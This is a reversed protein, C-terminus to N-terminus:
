LAFIICVSNDDFLKQYHRELHDKFEPYFDLWWQTNKPFVLYQAGQERLCDVHYIAEASSEPNYGAYAGDKDQPFHRAHRGNLKLFTQDGKSVVLVNARSPVNRDIINRVSAVLKNYGVYQRLDYVAWESNEFTSELSAQIYKLLALPPVTASEPKAIAIVDVHRKRLDELYADVEASRLPIYDHASRVQHLPGKRGRLWLVKYGEIVVVNRLTPTTAGLLSSVERISHERKGPQYRANATHFLLDRSALWLSPFHRELVCRGQRTQQINLLAPEILQRWSRDFSLDSHHLLGTVLRWFAPYFFLRTALRPAQFALLFQEHLPAEQDYLLRVHWLIQFLRGSEAMKWLGAVGANGRPAMKFIGHISRVRNFVMRSVEMSNNIGGPHARKHAVLTRRYSLDYHLAVRLWMESDEAVSLCPNYGGVTRYCDMRLLSTPVTIYNSACLEKFAEIGSETTDTFPPFREKPPTIPDGQEDIWEAEAHVLGVNPHHDLVAAQQELMHPLYLDDSDLWGIYEGRAVALCSNRNRSIGVQRDQRYYHIREDDISRVVAETEDTSADDYVIIEFDQMTQALVSALTEGIFHARNYTPICVSVKPRSDNPTGVPDLSTLLTGEHDVDLAGRGLWTRVQNRSTM